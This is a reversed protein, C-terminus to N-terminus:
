GWEVRLEEVPEPLAITWRGADSWGDLLAAGPKEALSVLDRRGVQKDYAGMRKAAIMGTKLSRSDSGRTTPSRRSARRRSITTTSLPEESSVACIAERRGTRSTRSARRPYPLAQRAPM